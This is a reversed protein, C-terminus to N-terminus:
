IDRLLSDVENTLSDAQQLFQDTSKDIDQSISDVLVTEEEPTTTVETSSQKKDCASLIACLAIIATIKKM